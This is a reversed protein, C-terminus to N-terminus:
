RKGCRQRVQEAGSGGFAQRQRDAQGPEARMEAEVREGREEEGHDIETGRACTQEREAIALWSGAGPRM